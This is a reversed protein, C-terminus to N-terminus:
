QSAAALKADTDEARIDPSVNDIDRWILWGGFSKPNGVRRHIIVARGAVRIPDRGPISIRMWYAATLTATDGEILLEENEFVMERPPGARTLFDLTAQLGVTKPVGNPMLVVDGAFLNSLAVRDRAAWAKAWAKGLAVIAARDAASGANPATPKAGRESHASAKGAFALGAGLVTLKLFQRRMSFGEWVCNNV